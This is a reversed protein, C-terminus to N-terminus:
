QKKTFYLIEKLMNIYHIKNLKINTDLDRVARVHPRQTADQVAHYVSAGRERVDGVQGLQGDDEVGVM